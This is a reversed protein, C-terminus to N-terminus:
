GHRVEDPAVASAPAAAPIAHRLEEMVEIVRGVIFLVPAKFDAALVRDPLGALTGVMVRQNPLTGREVAAAPTDAALGAETLRCAIEGIHHLGMYIVLTTQPDALSRWNLDLPQDDCCHGTVFRVGTALGRHTLPVKAAAACGSAASIGPVVACAIGHRALYLAEEAGRGFVFPDGGKLRVTRRGARVLTLLLANTEDQSQAHHGRAKGVCIRAAGVPVLDLVAQSVLRDYVVVEARRLVKVAKVTMLDPDGPGAGVLHVLPEAADRQAQSGTM